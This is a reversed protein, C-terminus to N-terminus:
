DGTLNPGFLSYWWPEGPLVGTSTPVTTGAAIMPAYFTMPLEPLHDPITPLALGGLSGLSVM